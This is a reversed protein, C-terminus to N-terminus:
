KIIKRFPGLLANESLPEKTSPIEIISPCSVEDGVVEPSPTIMTSFTFTSVGFFNM